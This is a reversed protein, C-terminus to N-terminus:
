KNLNEEIWTVACAFNDLIATPQSPIEADPLYKGTKVLIAQMGVKMAGAIDDNADDGIMICEEIKVGAPVAKKFFYENPKGIVKACRGTAYELGKVFCGPGLALGDNRKYYKGQHVAVLPYCKDKLLINFAKNLCEYHFNEPALGVVVSDCESEEV